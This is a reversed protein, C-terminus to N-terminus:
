RTPSAAPALTSWPANLRTFPKETARKEPVENITHIPDGLHRDLDLGIDELGVALEHAALGSPPVDPEPPADDAVIPRSPM